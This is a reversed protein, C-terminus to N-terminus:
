FRLHNEGAVEMELFDSFSFQLLLSKPEDNTLRAIFTYESRSNV